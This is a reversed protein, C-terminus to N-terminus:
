AGEVVSRVTQWILALDQPRSLRHEGDKVFTMRVDPGTITAAIKLATKWPVDTDLQGQILRVPKDFAIAPAAVLNNKGDKLLRQTIPM